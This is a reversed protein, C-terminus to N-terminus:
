EKEWVVEFSKGYEERSPITCKLEFEAKRRHEPKVMAALFGKIFQAVYGEYKELIEDRLEFYEAEWQKLEAQFQEMKSEALYGSISEIRMNESLTEQTNGQNKITSQQRAMFRHDFDGLKERIDKPLVYVFLEQYIMNGHKKAIPIFYKSVLEVRKLRVHIKGAIEYGIM